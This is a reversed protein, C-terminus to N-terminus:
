EGKAKAIAARAICSECEDGPLSDHPCNCPYVAIRELARLLDPAAAILRANARMEERSAGDPAPAVIVAQHAMSVTTRDSEVTWPGPTHQTTM